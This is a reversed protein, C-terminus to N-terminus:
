PGLVGVIIRETPEVLVIRDGSVIYRYTSTGAIRTTVDGPLAHLDQSPPVISGVEVSGVQATAAETPPTIQQKVIDYITRRQQESLDTFRPGVQVPEGSSGSRNKADEASQELKKETEDIKRPDGSKRAADLDGKVVAEDAANQQSQQQALAGGACCAAFVLSACFIRTLM